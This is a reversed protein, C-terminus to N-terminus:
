GSARAPVRVVRRVRDRGHGAVVRRDVACCRGRGFRDALAGMPIQFLAYTLFFAGLVYSM